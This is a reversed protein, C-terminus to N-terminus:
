WNEQLEPLPTKVLKGTFTEKRFRPPLTGRSSRLRRFNRPAMVPTQDKVSAGTLEKALKTMYAAMGKAYYVPTVHMEKGFGCETAAQLLWRRVIAKRDKCAELFFPTNSIAVNVHPYGSKHQEWTQIYELKGFERVMRKRLRAWSVVGFRYLARMQPWERHPYTLVVCTWHPRTTLAEQCRIFDCSGCWERCEGAHRWSRCRFPVHLRAPDSGDRKWLELHWAGRECAGVYSLRYPDPM